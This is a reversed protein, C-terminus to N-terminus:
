KIENLLSRYGIGMKESLWNFEGTETFGKIGLHVINTKIGEDAIINKIMTGLGGSIYHDELIVLRVCSRLFDCLETRDTIKFKFFSLICFPPEERTYTDYAKLCEVLMGGMTVVATSKQRKGYLAFSEYMCIPINHPKAAENKSLRIYSPVSSSLASCLSRDIDIETSPTYIEINPMSSIIGLDSIAHHPAGEMSASLGAYHGVIIVPLCPLCVAQVIQECARSILLSAFSNLVPRYGCRALGAAISVMNQEAIGVNIFDDPYQKKFMATKTSRSCDGDLVCIEPYVEKYALLAEIYANRM